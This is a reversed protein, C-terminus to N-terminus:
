VFSKPNHKFKEYEKRDYNKLLTKLPVGPNERILHKVFKRWVTFKVKAKPM